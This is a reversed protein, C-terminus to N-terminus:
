KDGKEWNIPKHSDVNAPETLCEYCPEEEEPENLHKCTPCWKEYEVIKLDGEM